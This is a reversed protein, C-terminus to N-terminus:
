FTAAVTAQPGSSYRGPIGFAPLFRVDRWGLSLALPGAAVRLSATADVLPLPVTCRASVALALPRAIRWEIGLGGGIGPAGIGADGIALLFLSGVAELELAVRPGRVIRRGLAGAVLLMGADVAGPRPDRMRLVDGDLSVSSISGRFDVALGAAWTGDPPSRAWRATISSEVAPPRHEPAAAGEARTAACAALVFLAIRLPPGYRGAERGVRASRDFTPRAAERTSLRERDM